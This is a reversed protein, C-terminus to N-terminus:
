ATQLSLHGAGQPHHASLKRIALPPPLSTRIDTCISTGRGTFRSSTNMQDNTETSQTHGSSALSLWVAAATSSPCRTVCVCRHARELILGLKRSCQSCSERRKAQRPLAKSGRMSTDVTRKRSTQQFSDEKQGGPESEHTVSSDQLLLGM